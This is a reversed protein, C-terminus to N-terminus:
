PLIANLFDRPGSMHKKEFTQFFKRFFSLPIRIIKEFKQPTPAGGSIGSSRCDQQQIV